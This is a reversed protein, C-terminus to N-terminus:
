KERNDKSITESHNKISYHIIIGLVFGVATLFIDDSTM